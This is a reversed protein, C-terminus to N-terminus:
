ADKIEVKGVGAVIFGVRAIWLGVSKLIKRFGSERYNVVVTLKASKWIERDKIEIASM